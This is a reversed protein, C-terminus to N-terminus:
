DRKRIEPPMQVRLDDGTPRDAYTRGEEDKGNIGVSYLLYGKEKPHYVLPKGAFTDQPVKALYKPTLADLKEPYRGQERQYWELALAVQLNDNIQRNRDSADQIKLFAPTLYTVLVDGMFKGRVEASQQLLVELAVKAPASISAVVNAAEVGLGLAKAIEANVGIKAKLTKLDVEVKSLEKKRAAYDKTRMVDTLRDFWANGARLAPDWDINALLRHVLKAEIAPVDGFVGGPGARDLLMVCDLYMFREGQGVVDAIDRMPPLERLDRLHSELKKADPRAHHLYVPYSSAAIADIAIGVLSEIVTGGQSIKRGLRHCALLDQWAGDHDGEGLRLLARRQLAHVFARCKQVGPLLVAILPGGGTSTALPAFYHSRRTAEVVLGLPKENAKLWSALHPKEKATWPKTEDIDIEDYVKNAQIKLKLHDKVYPALDVFYDGKDPPPEIGLWQFFEAPMKSGEPSPGHAKWLLVVMNNQPTVGASLQKNIAAVYDIYGQKDLPGDVFTTEKGITFKGRPKTKSDTQANGTQGGGLLTLVAFMVLAPLTQM